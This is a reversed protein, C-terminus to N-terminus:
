CLGHASNGSDSNVWYECGYVWSLTAGATKRQLLNMGVEWTRMYRTDWGMM